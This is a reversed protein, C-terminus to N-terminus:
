PINSRKLLFDDDSAFNAKSSTRARSLIASMLLQMSESPMSFLWRGANHAPQSGDDTRAAALLLSLM